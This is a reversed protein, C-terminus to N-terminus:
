YMMLCTALINQASDSAFCWLDLLGKVILLFIDARKYYNKLAFLIARELSKYHVIKQKEPQKAVEVGKSSPLIEM